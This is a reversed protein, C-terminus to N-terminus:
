NSRELKLILELDGMELVEEISEQICERTLEKVLLDPPILYQPDESKIIEAEIRRATEFHQFTWVLLEYSRGDELKIEIQSSDNEKSWSSTKTEEFDLFLEFKIM